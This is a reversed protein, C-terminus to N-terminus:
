NLFTNSNQASDSFNNNWKIESGPITFYFISGKGLESELTIEGGMLEVLGKSITLGLGSGGFKRTFSIDAQNFRQFISERVEKQIGIGTDKVYFKIFGPVTNYGFEVRGRETFKFANALLNNLVQKLRLPDAIIIAHEDPLSKILEFDLQKENYRPTQFTAYVENLLLNINITTKRLKVQGEQIISVDLIDDILSILSNANAKIIEIFEGRKDDSLESTELLQSFGIIGNVPTRIEHSMNALFATKLRDSEEAKEKAAILEKEFRRRQLAISAQYIFTEVIRLDKVIYEFRTLIVISGLLKGSRVIGMGYAKNLTILKELAKCVVFDINRNCVNYFGGTLTHLKNSSFKLERKMQETLKTSYHLPNRGLFEVIVEMFKDVGTINQIVLSDTADDYTSFIVVSEPVLEFLKCGIYNYIQESSSLSLFELATNELFVLNDQYEKERIEALKRDTIDRSNVVIGNILPNGLLNSFFSEFYLREGEYNLCCYEVKHMNDPSTIVQKILEIIIEKDTDCILEVFQKGIAETGSINLIKKFYSSDFIVNGSSDIVTISDTSNRLLSKLRDDNSRLQQEIRKYYTIDRSIGTIGIVESHSNIVPTKITETYVTGENTEIFEDFQQQKKTKLVIYDNYAYLEAIDPHCLDTDTKGLMEDKNHNYHKAFAENVSVYKGETNKLWAMHPINDLIAQQQTQTNLLDLELQKQRTIDSTVSIFRIINKNTDCVPFCREWVWTISGDSRIVRFQGNFKGTQKYEISNFHASVKVRDDPHIWENPIHNHHYAEKVPHGFIKEFAPNIYLVADDSCLVFADSTNEAFQRFREESDMLINEITKRSTIDRAMGSTGIFLGNEDFIPTKHVEFWFVEGKILFSKEETYKTRLPQIESESCIFDWFELYEPLVVPNEACFEDVDINFFRVFSNNVIVLKENVDKLWVLYPINDLLAHLHAKSKFLINEATKRNTINYSFLVVGVIKNNVVIPNAELYYFITSSEEKLKFETSSKKGLMATNFLELWSNHSDFLPLSLLYLDKDPEIKFRKKFFSTFAVNCSILKGECDLTWIPHNIAEVLLHDINNIQSIDLHQVKKMSDVEENQLLDVISDKGKM